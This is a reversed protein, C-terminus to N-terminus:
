IYGGADAERISLNGEFWESGKHYTAGGILVGQYCRILRPTDPACGRVRAPSPPPAPPPFVRKPLLPTGEGQMRPAIVRREQASELASERAM